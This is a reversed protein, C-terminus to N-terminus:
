VQKMQLLIKKIIDRNRDAYPPSEIDIWEINEGIDYSFLKGDSKPIGALIDYSLNFVSNGKDSKNRVYDFIRDNFLYIGLAEPHELRVKNKEIFERVLNYTLGNNNDDIIVRGMEEHRQRRVAVMGIMEERYNTYAKNYEQLMGDIDLACLNDAFWVLFPKDQIINKEIQILAGGTGYKKDEVFTILKGLIAEKGEFYNIIQKGFSDFECMIILDSIQSFKILYRVIHDLVPRGDIAIMAKPFYDTFPKGRTGYGGALLVVKLGRM